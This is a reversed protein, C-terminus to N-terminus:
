AGGAQRTGPASTTRLAPEGGSLTLTYRGGRLEGPIPTDLLENLAGAAASRVPHNVWAEYSETSDWTATALVEGEGEWIEVSRCGDLSLAHDVISEREFLDIM